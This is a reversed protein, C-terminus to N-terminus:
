VTARCGIFVPEASTTESCIGLREFLPYIYAAGITGLREPRDVHSQHQRLFLAKGAFYNVANRCFVKNLGNLEMEDDHVSYTYEESGSSYFPVNQFACITEWLLDYFEEGIEENEDIIRGIDKQLMKLKRSRLSESDTRYRFDKKMVNNTMSYQRIKRYRLERGKRKVSNLKLPNM